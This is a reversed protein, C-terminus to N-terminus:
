SKWRFGLEPLEQCGKRSELGDSPVDSRFGAGRTEIRQRSGLAGIGGIRTVGFGSQRTGDWDAGDGGGIGKETGSLM